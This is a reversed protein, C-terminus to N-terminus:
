MTIFDCMHSLFHWYWVQVDYNCSVIDYIHISSKFQLNCYWIWKTHSANVVLKVCPWFLLLISSITCFWHILSHELLVDLYDSSWIAHYLTCGNVKGSILSKEFIVLYRTNQWANHVSVIKLPSNARSNTTCMWGPYLCIFMVPQDYFKMLLLPYM